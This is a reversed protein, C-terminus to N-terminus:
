ASLFRSRLLRAFSSQQCRSPDDGSSHRETTAMIFVVRPLPEELTKLLARQLGPHSLMYKTSSSYNTGIALPAIGVSAIIADRVNDVGTNSAADIEQVDISRRESIAHCSACQTPDDTRCPTPTPATAKHCNLAKALLRATTTKGV